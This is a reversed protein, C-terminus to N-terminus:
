LCRLVLLLGIFFLASPEQMVVFLCVVGSLFFVCPTLNGNADDESESVGRLPPDDLLTNQPVDGHEGRASVCQPATDQSVETTNTNAIPTETLEPPAEDEAGIPAVTEVTEAVPSLPEPTKDDHHAESKTSAESLRGPPESSGMAVETEFGGTGSPSSVGEAASGDGQTTPLLKMETSASTMPDPSEAGEAPPGASTSEQPSPASASPRSNISWELTNQAESQCRPSPQSKDPPVSDGAYPGFAPDTQLTTESPTRPLKESRFLAHTSM